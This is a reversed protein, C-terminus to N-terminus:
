EERNQIRPLGHGFHRRTKSRNSNHDERAPPQKKWQTQSPLSSLLLSSPLYLDEGSSPVVDIVLAGGMYSRTLRVIYLPEPRWSGNYQPNHSGHPPTHPTTPHLSLVCCHRSFIVTSHLPKPYCYDYYFLMVSGFCFLLAKISLLKIVLSTYM